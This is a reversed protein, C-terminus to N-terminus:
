CNSLSICHLEFGVISDFNNGSREVGKRVRGEKRRAKREWSAKKTPDAKTGQNFM